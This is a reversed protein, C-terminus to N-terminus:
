IITNFSMKRIQLSKGPLGRQYSQFSPLQALKESFDNDPSAVQLLPTKNSIEKEDAEVDVEVVLSDSLGNSQHNETSSSSIAVNETSPTTNREPVDEETEEM